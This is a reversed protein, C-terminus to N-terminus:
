SGSSYQNQIVEKYQHRYDKSAVTHGELDMDGGEGGATAQEKDEAKVEGVCEVEPDDEEEVEQVQEEEVQKEAELIEEEPPDASSTLDEVSEDQCNVTSGDHPKTSYFCSEISIEGGYSDHSHAQVNKILNNDDDDSMYDKPSKINPDPFSQYQSEFDHDVFDRLVAESDMEGLLEQGVEDDKLLQNERLFDLEEGGEDEGEEPELISADEAEEDEGEGMKEDEQDVEKKEKEIIEEEMKEEDGSNDQKVQEEEMDIDEEKREQVKFPNM